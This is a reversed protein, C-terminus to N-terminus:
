SREGVKQNGKLLPAIVFELLLNLYHIVVFEVVVKWEGCESVVDVFQVFFFVFGAEVSVM